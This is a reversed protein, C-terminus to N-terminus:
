YRRSHHLASGVRRSPIYGASQQVNVSALTSGGLTASGGLGPRAPARNGANGSAAMSRLRPNGSGANAQVQYNDRPHGYSQCPCQCDYRLDDNQYMTASNNLERKALNDINDMSTEFWFPSDCSPNFVEALASTPPVYM